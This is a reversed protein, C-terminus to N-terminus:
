NFPRICKQIEYRKIIRTNLVDKGNYIFNLHFLIFIFCFLNFLLINVKNFRTHYSIPFLHESTYSKVCKNPLPHCKHIRLGWYECFVRSSFIQVLSIGVLLFKQGLFYGRPFIRSGRFLWSIFIQSRRFIWPFFIPVSLSGVLSFDPGVFYGRSFIKSSRFVFFYNPAVFHGQSFIKSSRASKQRKLLTLTNRVEEKCGQKWQRCGPCLNLSHGTRM